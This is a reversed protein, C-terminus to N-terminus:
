RVWALRASVSQGARRVQVQYIGRAVTRGADDRGNWHLVAPAGEAVPASWHRVLRGREDFIRLEAPGGPGPRLLLTATTSTPNPYVRLAPGTARTAPAGVASDVRYLYLGHGDVGAAVLTGEAGVANVFYPTPAQDLLVPHSPDTVDALGLSTGTSLYALKGQPLVELVTGPDVAGLLAPHAPDALDYVQLGGVAAAVYLRGHATALDAVNSGPTILDVQEPATPDTADIVRIGVNSKATYVHHDHAALERQYSDSGEIPLVGVEEIPGSGSVDLIRLGLGYESLYLLGNQEQANYATGDLSLGHGLYFYGNPLYHVKGAFGEGVVYLLGDDGGTIGRVPIDVRHLVTPHRPSSLDVSLLATEEAVFALDGRVLVAHPDSPILYHSLHTPGEVDVLHIGDRPASLAIRGDQLSLRNGSPELDVHQVITGGVPDYASLGAGTAMWLRSGDFAADTVDAGADVLDVINATSPGIQLILPGAYGPVLFATTGAMEIRPGPGGYESDWRYRYSIDGALLDFVVVAAELVDWEPVLAAACLTSGNSALDVLSVDSASWAATREIAQLDGVDYIELGSWEEAVCLHPGTLHLGVAPGATAITAVALPHDPDSLDFIRVGGDEAAVYLRGGWALLARATGGDIPLSEVWIPVLPDHVDYVVLVDSGAVYLHDGHLLVDRALGGAIGGLFTLPAAVVTTGSALLLAAFLLIPRIRRSM